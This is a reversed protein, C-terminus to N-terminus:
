NDNGTYALYFSYFHLASVNNPALEIARKFHREAEPWDWYHDALIAGLSKHAEGLSEDLDLAKLAAERGLPHSESIPMIHYSGLLAYTDALGAYAMAYSPDLAIAKLFHEKGKQLGEATDKAWHWRGRLYQEYALTTSPLNIIWM